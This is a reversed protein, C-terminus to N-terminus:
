IRNFSEIVNELGTEKCLAIRSIIWGLFFFLNILIRDIPRSSPPYMSTIFFVYIEFIIVFGLTYEFGYSLPSFLLGLVFSFIIQFEIDVTHSKSLNM